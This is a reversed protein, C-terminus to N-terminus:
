AKRRESLLFRAFTELQEKEGTNLDNYIELFGQAGDMSFSYDAKKDKVYDFFELFSVGLKDCIMEITDVRPSTKGKALGYVTTKPMGTQKVFDSPKDYGKKELLENFRKPIGASISM